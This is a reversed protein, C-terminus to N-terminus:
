SWINEGDFFGSGKANGSSKIARWDWDSIVIFDKIRLCPRDDTLEEEGVDCHGYCIGVM